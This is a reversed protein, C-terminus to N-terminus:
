KENKCELKIEYHRSALRMNCAGHWEHKDLFDRIVKVYAGPEENIATHASNEFVVFESNKVQGAYRKTTEPTTFDYRGCTFLTPLKIEKLINTRDFDKLNGTCGFEASGWM